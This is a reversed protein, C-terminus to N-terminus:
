GDEREHEKEHEEEDHAEDHEDNVDSSDERAEDHDEIEDEREDRAEVENEYEHSAESEHSGAENEHGADDEAHVVDFTMDPLSLENHMEGVDDSEVVRITFDIDDLDAGFSVGISLFFALGVIIGTQVIKM